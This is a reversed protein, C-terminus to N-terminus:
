VMKLRSLWALYLVISGAVAANLSEINGCMPLRLLMDCSARVLPRMGEGENGVVFALSEKYPLQHFHLDDGSSDLGIVWVGLNKLREIAQALNVQCIHLHETAGSSAHVVAPTILASRRLPLLVGKAGVAEATRLLTGLNQPDQIMDLILFMPKAQEDPSNLMELLEAFDAYPYPEVFLAIGQHNSGLSDLKIRDVKQIPINRQYCLQLIEKLKNTKSSTKELQQEKSQLLYLRFARRRAARLVEVVPQQGLIVETDPM